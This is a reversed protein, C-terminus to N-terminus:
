IDSEFPESESKYTSDSRTIRKKLGKFLVILDIGSGRCRFCVGHERHKWQPFHGPGHCRQCPTYRKLPAGDEDLLPIRDERHAKEHCDKCLTILAKDPYEWASLGIQYYLHHVELRADNQSNSCRHCIYGDRRKIEERRQVWAASKIQDIYEATM